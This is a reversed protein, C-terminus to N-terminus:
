QAACRVFACLERDFAAGIPTNGLDFGHIGGPVERYTVDVGAERLRETYARDEDLFLDPTGVGVWAPPLGSLDARRAPVAYPPSPEGPPHGLYSSWGFRNSRNNWTRHGLRDLERRTATVDDLMPYVLLQAVPQPGGEDHLRQALAAAHGGGASVGGIVIKRPDIDLADAHALLWTWAEHCDDLAAPFPHQPALRYSCCVVPVGAGRAVCVAKGVVDDTSGIVFGGGHILLLAGRGTVEDPTILLAGRGCDALEQKRVGTLDVKPVLLKTLVRLVRYTWGNVLLGGVQRDLARLEEAPEPPTDITVRLDPVDHILPHTLAVEQPCGRLSLPTAPAEGASLSGYLSSM